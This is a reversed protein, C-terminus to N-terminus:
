AASALGQTGVHASLWAGVTAQDPALVTIGAREALREYGASALHLPVYADISAFLGEHLGARFPRALLVIDAVGDLNVGATAAAQMVHAGLAEPQGDVRPDALLYLCASTGVPAAQSWAKLLEPLRDNGRWAPTALVRAAVNEELDHGVSGPSASKLPLESVSRLCQLYLTGVDSWTYAEAAAHAATGRRARGEVDRDAEVLLHRLADADPELMWVNQVTEWRDIRNPLVMRSSPIRWCAEDPCFEDTPGGATVIVPKGCAMAELVPMGFGEGRYPHVLVDCARYLDAMDSDSLERDIYEVRPLAGSAAHSRIVDREQGRYVGNAGFDKVVLTVDDRGAFAARYADFLVDPGKRGIWGGVFLFRTGSAKTRLRYRRGEPSFRRPDVGNPLVRVRDEAVGDRVYMQRAFESPVWVEDVNTNIQEVWELPISGFEWPQIVALRGSAAPRFDPPWQHRVEVDAVHPLPPDVSLGSREVREVRVGSKELESTVRQNIISLSTNLRHDGVWRVALPKEFIEAQCPRAGAYYAELDDVYASFSRPAEIQSQLRELLGRESALRDLQRALDAASRGNFLLGDREDTVAEMLGGMRAAVVPVRGALCEGAMLPACDWWMSPLVAVDVDALLSPLESPSFAGRLEVVGRRDLVRLAEAFQPSIEGHMLVRVRQRMLQAAEVLLQPGKHPYASGFFAVTLRDGVRGFARNRGLQEWTADASPVGQRVVDIMEAPYGTAILTQRVADSVALCANISRSFRSRIEAQRFQYGAVDSSGVCSACDGGRNGPGACLALDTKFLYNRPCALWYNHTSFYAPIGRTSTQDLLASGLNHLNHFHVVDPKFRDLAEGFAQTIPPDDVERRPNGLDLLGHPRNFVGILHVGDEDWERIEYPIGTETKGVAAHFVSVDWGRRSLEKAVYRPVMTGGGSDNWGFSTLM